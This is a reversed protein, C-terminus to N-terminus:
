SETIRAADPPPEDFPMGHSALRTGRLVRRLLVIEGGRYAGHADLDVPMEVIAVQGNGLTPIGSV